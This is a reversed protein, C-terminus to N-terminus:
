SVEPLRAAPLRTFANGGAVILGSGLWAANGPTEGLIVNPVKRTRGDGVREILTMIPIKTVTGLGWYPKRHNAPSRQPLRRHLSRNVEGGSQAVMATLHSVSFRSDGVM